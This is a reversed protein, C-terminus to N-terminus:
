DFGDAPREGAAASSARSSESGSSSSYDSSSDRCDEVDVGFIRAIAEDPALDTPCSNPDKAARLGMSTKIRKVLRISKTRVMQELRPKRKLKEEALKERKKLVKSYVQQWESPRPPPLSISPGSHHGSTGPCERAGAGNRSQRENRSSSCTPSEVPALSLSHVNNQQGLGTIKVNRPLCTKGRVELSFDALDQPHAVDCEDESLFSSTSTEQSTSSLSQKDSEVDLVEVSASVVAAPGTDQRTELPCECSGANAPCNIRIDVVPTEEIEECEVNQEDKGKRRNSCIVSNCSGM